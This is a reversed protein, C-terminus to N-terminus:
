NLIFEDQYAPVAVDWGTKQRVYYGFSEASQPEGHVVFVKRPPVKLKKLWALLEDKDAHASFGHVQMVKAKVPYTQGLIRVEKQGDVIQRGLTGLAQYGVFM